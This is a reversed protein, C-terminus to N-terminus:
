IFTENIYAVVDAIEQDSLSLAPMMGSGDIIVGVLAADSLTPAVTSLDAGPGSNGDAGHCIDNGCMTTFVSAGAASDPSMSLIMDVRDNGSTTEGGEGSSGGDCAPLLVFTASLLLARSWAPLCSHRTPLQPAAM